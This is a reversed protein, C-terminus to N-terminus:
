KPLHTTHKAATLMGQTHNHRFWGGFHTWHLPICHPYSIEKNGWSESGDAPSTWRLLWDWTPPQPPQYRVAQYQEHMRLQQKTEIRQKSALRIINTCVNKLNPRSSPSYPCIGERAHSSHIKHNRNLHKIHTALTRFVVNIGPQAQVLGDLAATLRHFM